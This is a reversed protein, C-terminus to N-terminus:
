QLLLLHPTANDLFPLPFALNSYWESLRGQISLTEGLYDMSLLGAEYKKRLPMIENAIAHLTAKARGISSALSPRVPASWPYPVWDRKNQTDVIDPVPIPPPLVLLPSEQM